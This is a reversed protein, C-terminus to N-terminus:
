IEPYRPFPVAIETLLVYSPFLLRSATFSGRPLSVSMCYSALPLRTATAAGLAVELPELKREVVSIEYSELLLGVAIQSGAQDCVLPCSQVAVGAGESLRQGADDLLARM